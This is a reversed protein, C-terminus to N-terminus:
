TWTILKQDNETHGEEQQGGGGAEVGGGGEGVFRAFFTFGYRYQM